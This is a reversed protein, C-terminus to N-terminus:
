SAKVEYYEENFDSPSVGAVIHTQAISEAYNLVDVWYEDDKQADPIQKDYNLQAMAFAIKRIDRVEKGTYVHKDTM